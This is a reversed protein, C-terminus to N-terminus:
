SKKFGVAQTECAHTSYIFQKTILLGSRTFCVKSTRYRTYLFSEIEWNQTRHVSTEADNM